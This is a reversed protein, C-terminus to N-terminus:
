KEMAFFFQATRLGPAPFYLLFYSSLCLFSVAKLTKLFYIEGQKVPSCSISM